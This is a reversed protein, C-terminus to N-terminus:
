QSADIDVILEGAKVPEGVRFAVARVTGDVAAVVNHEMKMAEVVAVSDGQRVRDGVAVAVAAVTGSMPAVAAGAAAASAFARSRAPQLAFRDGDVQLEWVGDGWQASWPASGVSGTWLRSPDPAGQVQWATGGVAVVFGCASRAQLACQWRTEGIWLHVRGLPAQPDLCARDAPGQNEDVAWPHGGANPAVGLVAACAAARAEGAAPVFRTSHEDLYRTHAQAMKVGPDALVRRLYGINTTLGLLLTESLAVSLKALAGVRDPAHAVLKAVMPDYFSPVSGGCSIGAEVRVGAPWRVVGVTGPAPMFDRAPDEAYIRCEVAHGNCRIMDQQLPLPEGAAVRLQWEVLDLGTVCETVPHEVQLRTNVELFYFQLDRGVIFEFTGANLYGVSRAGRVAADILRHRVAAPLNPAPAEEVVKQHRRQLSCEREFLHVVDGNLDGFVQVEIHRPQEIYREVILRGDGFSSRAIRIASAVAEDLEAHSAVVRMGKGGGGASPKLLAPLGVRRVMEQIVAPEDSAGEGGPVVPVGAAQMLSKARAKDGLAAITEPKPGIFTLGAAIVDAAFRSNESLFGYGPHVADCGTELAAAIILAGDLYSQAAPGAGIRVATVADHLHLAGADVDTYIAVYEVRLARCTRAIRCAIEGRNAILIRRFM